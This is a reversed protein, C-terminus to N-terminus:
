LPRRRPRRYRVARALVHVDGRRDGGRAGNPLYAFERRLLDDGGVDALDGTLFNADNVQGRLPVISRSAAIPAASSSTPSGRPMMGSVPCSPPGCRRFGRWASSISEPFRLLERRTFRLAAQM